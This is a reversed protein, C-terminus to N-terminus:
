DHYEYKTFFIYYSNILNVLTWLSWMISIGDLISTIDAAAIGSAQIVDRWSRVYEFNFSFSYERIWAAEEPIPVAKICNIFNLFPIEIANHEVSSFIFNQM